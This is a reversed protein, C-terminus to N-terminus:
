DLVWGWPWKPAQSASYGAPHFSHARIQEQQDNTSAVCEGHFTRNERSVSIGLVFLSWVRERDCTM